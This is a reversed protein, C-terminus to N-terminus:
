SPSISTLKIAHWHAADAAKQTKSIHTNHKYGTNDICMLKLQLDKCSPSYLICNNGTHFRSVDKAIQLTSSKVSVVIGSSLVTPSEAAYLANYVSVKGGTDAGPLSLLGYGHRQHQGMPVMIQFYSVEFSTTCLKNCRQWLHVLVCVIAWPSKTELHWLPSIDIPNGLPPALHLQCLDFNNIKWWYRVIDWFHHSITCCPSLNSHLALLFKYLNYTSYQITSYGTVTLSRYSGFWGMKECKTNRKMDKYRISISVECINVM